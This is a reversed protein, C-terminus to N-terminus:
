QEKVGGSLKSKLRKLLETASLYDSGEVKRRAQQVGDFLAEGEYCCEQLEDLVQLIISENLDYTADEMKELLNEFEDANLQRLEDKNKGNDELATGSTEVTIQEPCLNRNNSLRSFLRQYAQMLDQHKQLIYDIRSEKGALELQRAKESLEIAGIGSMAGKIGHVEITYNKWDQKDYLEQIYKQNEKADQVHLKLVEIYNEWTGISGDFGNIFLQEQVYVITIYLIFNFYLLDLM